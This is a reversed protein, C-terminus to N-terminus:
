KITQFQKSKTQFNLVDMGLKLYRVPTWWKSTLFENTKIMNLIEIIIYSLYLILNHNGSVKAFMFFKVMFAKKYANEIIEFEHQM